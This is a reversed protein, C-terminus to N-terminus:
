TAVGFMQVGVVTNQNFIGVAYLDYQTEYPADRSVRYVILNTMNGELYEQLKRWEGTPDTSTRVRFFDTWSQKIIRTETPRRILSLFVTDTLEKVQTNRYFAFVESDQESIYNLSASRTVIGHVLQSITSAKNASPSQANGAAHCSSAALILIIVAFLLLTLIAPMTYTRSRPRVSVAEFRKYKLTNEEL